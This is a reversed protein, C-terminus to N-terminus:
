WGKKALLALKLFPMTVYGLMMDRYFKSKFIFSPPRGQLEHLMMLVTVCKKNAFIFIFSTPFCVPLWSYVRTVYYFLFYAVNTIVVHLIM